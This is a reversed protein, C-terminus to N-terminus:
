ALLNQIGDIEGKHEAVIVLEGSETLGNFPPALKRYSPIGQLAPLTNRPSVIKVTSYLGLNVLDLLSLEGGPAHSWRGCYKLVEIFNPDIKWKNLLLAGFAKSYDRCLQYFTKNAPFEPLDKLAVLIALTGVESLLAALMVEEPVTKQIKLALFSSIASKLMLRRWIQQYINKIAASRLIFLSKVSHAMALSSVRPMGLLSIVAALTKPPSAQAYLPSAATAMLLATFSPDENCIAAIQESSVSEDTLASRLKLTVAPLSPLQEPDLMVKQVVSRYVSYSDGM